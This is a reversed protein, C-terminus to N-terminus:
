KEKVRKLTDVEGKSDKTVLEDDTLRTVTLTEKITTDGVKMEVNMQNGDLKYTGDVAETKGDATVSMTFKGADKFELVTKRGKPDTKAPSWKGVLKRADVKEDAAGAWGAAVAVAVAVLAVLVRM